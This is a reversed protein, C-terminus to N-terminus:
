ETTAVLWPAVKVIQRYHRVILLSTTLGVRLTPNYSDLHAPFCEDIRLFSISAWPHRVCIGRVFFSKLSRRM